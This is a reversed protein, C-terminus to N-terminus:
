LRESKLKGRAGLFQERTRLQMLAQLTAKAVNAPNKSGLSKALVDKVGAAEVVARVAGGAIIGTGPSAPKLLVRGGGFEGTSEHPITNGRLNINVYAKKAAEGAKKIADSVENAKGFGYGVRGQRDGSVVLASFSFRRGGKVVKACRNIHVVKETMEPRGGEDSSTASSETVTDTSM